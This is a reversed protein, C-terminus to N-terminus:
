LTLHILHRPPLDNCGTDCFTMELDISVHESIYALRYYFTMATTNWTFCKRLTFTKKIHIIISAFPLSPKRQMLTFKKHGSWNPCSNPPPPYVQFQLFPFLQSSYVSIPPGLCTQIPSIQKHQVLHSMYLNGRFSHCLRVPGLPPICFILQFNYMTDPAPKM